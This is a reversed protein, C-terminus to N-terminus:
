TKEGDLVRNVIADAEINHERRIHRIKVSSFGIMANKVELFREALEPNKVRYVGTLQRAALESDMWLEVHTAGLERAKQLGILIAVYEAQNNTTRGLSRSVEAVKKHPTGAADLVYLVAGSAAPGPNGRAGGDTYIRITM